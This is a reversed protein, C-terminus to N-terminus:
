DLISKYLAITKESPKEQPTKAMASCCRNFVETVNKDKNQNHYIIMLQQYLAELSPDRSIGEEYLEIMRVIDKHTNAVDVLIELSDHFVQRLSEQTSVFCPMEDNGSLFPGQYITLLRDTHKEMEVLNYNQKSAIKFCKIQDAVQELAWVDVWILRSNISINGDRLLIIDDSGLLKRLRHLNITLSKNGYESDVHPWLIKAIEKANVNRGGLAILVKLLLLPRGQGKGDELRENNSNSINLGGLTFVRTSWPWEKVDIPPNVTELKRQTIFNRVYDVEVKNRLAIAFIESLQQPRWWPVYYYENTRGLGLAYRLANMGSSIRNERIAVDGYTLLTMFELLPNQIDRTISHVRRLQSEGSRTDDCLYLLQALATTSIAELLKIGLESSCSQAQKQEHYAKIIDNNLLAYWSRFYNDFFHLLRNSNSIVSSLETLWKGAKELDGQTVSACYHCAYVYPLVNEIAYEQAHSLAIDASKEAAIGDGKLFENLSGLLLYKCTLASNDAELRNEKQFSSLIKNSRSFQGTLTYALVM